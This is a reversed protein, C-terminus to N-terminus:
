NAIISFKRRFSRVEDSVEAVYIGTALGRIVTRNTNINQMMVLRGQTDVIRVAWNSAVGLRLNVEDSSPNPYIDLSTSVKTETIGVPDCPAGTVAAEANVRGTGILGAYPANQALGDIPDASSKIKAIVEAANLCPFQARVLAAIGSVIPAAMSTGGQPPTYYTVGSLHATTSVDIGPASVDVSDNRSFTNLGDEFIDIADVGTVSLVHEYSAPYYMDGSNENGASAVMVVDNNVAAWTIVDQAVQSFTKNGWSCNVISAGQEVCYEIGEYGHTITSTNGAVKVPIFKCKFGIGAYGLNNDATAAAIGTVADGHIEGNRFLDNDNEAMDWGAYNDIYNDSDEDGNGIPDDYNYKINGVFDPHLTYIATETIGIVVNTDGLTIDWAEYANINDYHYPMVSNLETDNPVYHSFSVFSPEAYQIWPLKSLGKTAALIDTGIPVNVKYLLSIDAMKRGHENFEGSPAHASPFKKELTKFNLLAFQENLEPIAIASNSCASRYEQKIKINIVDSLYQDGNESTALSSDYQQALLSFPILILIALQKM